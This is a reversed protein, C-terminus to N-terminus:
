YAKYRKPKMGKQVQIYRTWVRFKTSLGNGVILIFPNVPMQTDLRDIYMGQLDTSTTLMRQLFLGVPQALARAAMIAIFMAFLVSSFSINNMGILMAFFTIVSILQGSVVMTACRPHLALKTEGAQLRQLGERAANLVLSPNLPAQIFFGDPEAFGGVSLNASYRQELIHITAHEVAHNRRRRKDFAVRIMQWPLTLLNKFSVLAFGFPVLTFLTIPLLFLFGFFVLLSM